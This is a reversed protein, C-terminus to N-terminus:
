RPIEGLTYGNKIVIDGNGYITYTTKLPKESNLIDSQTIVRIIHPNVKMYEIKKVIRTENVKKWNIDYSPIAGGGFDVEGLDNDTLARWFNPIM